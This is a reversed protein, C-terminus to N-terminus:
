ELHSNTANEVSWHHKLIYIAQKRTPIKGTGYFDCPLIEFSLADELRDEIIGRRSIELNVMCWGPSLDLEETVCSITGSSPLIDPLGNTMESDLLVLNIQTREDRIRVLFRLYHVTKETLNSEYDISVKIKCGPKISEGTDANTITLSKIRVSGKGQRNERQELPMLNLDQWSKLYSDVVSDPTGDASVTGNDLLVVRQCLSLVAAMDHSVFLVTRGESTAVNNLKGLCKKQFAADGVALVEDILLIEPELHAAVSFGLRVRMGSSYYKVPTDIFQEVESFDLIEDFKQDIERKKMGLIAGNLYINERGTLELHFGTGVELLSAIRGYIDIRGETPETIGTIIKLLTSKGAGNRGIIGVIEGRSVNFSIDKLSWFLNKKDAKEVVTGANGNWGLGSVLKKVGGSVSKTINERLTRFENTEGIRYEKGIDKVKITIESM